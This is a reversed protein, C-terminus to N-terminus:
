ASVEKACLRGGVHAGANASSNNLAWLWLGAFGGYDWGGGVVAIYQGTNQYYYDKYFNASVDVPFEAFPLVADYGMYKVYGDANKNVYGLQEYPSAFLNSAFQAANKCVWVQRANINIGDVFQWINGWVNEIRRYHFPNKGNTNNALSGSSAAIGSSFGNKWGCNWIVNGIVASFVAGDVTITTSGAGPTDAQILTINRGYFVSTSGAATGLGIPQGVAFAAGTTNAVVITNAAVTDATLAHAANFQGSTWGAMIAQSNLTAFEITFLVQLMDYVHIDMQQYGSLGGTNNALAYNRFDVINKNILPFTGSKSELKGGSESAVFKGVYVYDLWVNNTFDYFCWPKYSNPMKAKSVQWTKKSATDTKRIYHAPIKVFVNGLTDTYEELDGFLEAADFDNTPTSAGEGANAVMGVSANIRTLPTDTKAWSVGYVKQGRYTTQTENITNAASLVVLLKQASNMAVSREGAKDSITTTIAM